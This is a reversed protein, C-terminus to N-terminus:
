NRWGIGEFNFNGRKIAELEAREAEKYRPDETELKKCDICIMQENFMSMIHVKSQQGCRKCSNDLM